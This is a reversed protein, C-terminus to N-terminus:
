LTTKGPGGDVRIGYAQRGRAQPSGSLVTQHTLTHRCRRGNADARPQRQEGCRARPPSPRPPLGSFPAPLRPARAVGAQGHRPDTPPPPSPRGRPSPLGRGDRRNPEAATFAPTPPVGLPRGTSGRQQAHCGAGATDPGPLRPPRKGSLQPPSFPQRERLTSRSSPAPSVAERAELNGGQLGPLHTGGDPAPPPRTLNRKRAGQRGLRHRLGPAFGCASSRAPPLAGRRVRARLTGSAEDGGAAAPRLRKGGLGHPHGATGRELSPCRPPFFDTFVEQLFCFELCVCVGAFNQKLYCHFNRNLHREAAPASNLGPTQTM